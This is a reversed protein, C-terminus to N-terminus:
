GHGLVSGNSLVYTLHERQISKFSALSLVPVSVQILAEAAEVHLVDKRAKRGIPLSPIHQGLKGKIVM